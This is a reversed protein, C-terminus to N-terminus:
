TLPPKGGTEHSTPSTGNSARTRGQRLDALREERIQLWRARPLEMRTLRLGYRSVTRIVVFGCKEFSKRARNNWELTHLYLKRLSTETFMHDVLAVMSHYGYGKSWYDRDGIMIGVEAEGYATNIDYCMCNGIHRGDLTDIAFRESWPSPYLLTEEYSRLFEDYPQRLPTTADLTALEEDCRWAYDEPADQLRKERLQVKGAAIPLSTM